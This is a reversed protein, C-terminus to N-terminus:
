VSSTEGSSKGLVEQIKRIFEQPAVPKSIFSLEEELIGKKHVIDATYGSTFLVKIGPRAQRIRNYAEKGNMKPMVVDLVILEIRDKNETFARVADEGDVAEVVTYGFEELIARMLKRVAAEDEALLVTEKGRVPAVATHQLKSQAASVSILPLYIKFSTGRGPESYVNIYGNHQKVIGYVMALGLGTGKGVEKTTFFPDFIRERTTEHMGMGTDTVSLLAYKGPIVYTHSKSYDDDLSVSVTEITLLGGGPMADRANTALNMLVQEIQGSDAMVTLHGAALRAKFDIDEGILRSLLKEIGQVIRNLDVPKPNIIQKRSFALLSHTLHAARESSALIQEVDNRLPDHTKMKMLLLAGYGGIATLINNFDHAIGGALQGVAEMKQAQRLQIQLRMQEEEDQRRKTIDDGLSAIGVVEGHADKLITNYWAILRREGARSIIENEHYSPFSSTLIVTTFVALTRERDNAPLVTDFWNRGMIEDREWGTLELLFDNCFTINGQRDLMVAILHIGDLISRFRRESEILEAEIRKRKTIDRVLEVGATIVGSSDKLPSATIEFYRSSGNIKVQREVRHVEGDEFALTVPCKERSDSMLSYARYCFDGTHDGMLKKHVNNQFLINYNRDQISLGDGIAAIVAETRLKEDLAAATAEQLAAETRERALLMKELLGMYILLGGLVLGTLIASVAGAVLHEKDFYPIWPHLFLDILASLNGMLFVFFLFTLARSFPPQAHIARTLRNQIKDFVM